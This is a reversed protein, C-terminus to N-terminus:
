KYWQQNGIMLAEQVTIRSGNNYASVFADSIITTNWLHIRYDRADKYVPFSGISYKQWGDHFEKRVEKELKYKKFYREIEIPKHGAAIQVRFYVGNEPELLYPAENKDKHKKKFIHKKEKEVPLPKEDELKSPRNDVALPATALYNILEGIEPATLSALEKETQKIDISITKEEELYSFKGKLLPESARKDKPILKYSVMFYPESPLNMWLFKVKGKKFTFIAEKPDVNLAEFGAPVLEEIKAFKQKSEKNVLITIIYGENNPMPVPNQRICAIQGGAAAPSIYPVVKQEFDAIDVILAPDITSSPLINISTSEVNVSKRENNEIFSFKGKINFTGKLREDVKIKYVVTFEEQRPLRMWILRVRKEEFTFDADSSLYSSATLGAPLNQQLRSFGELQGKQINVRVEFETGAVIEIPTEINCTVGSQFVSGALFTAILNVIIIFVRYM